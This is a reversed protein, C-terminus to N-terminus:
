FGLDINAKELEDELHKIKEQAKSLESQLDTESRKQQPKQSASSLAERILRMEPSHEYYIKWAKGHESKPLRHEGTNHFLEIVNVAQKLAVEKEAVIEEFASLVVQVSKEIDCIPAMEVTDATERAKSELDIM